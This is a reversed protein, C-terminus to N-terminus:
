TSSRRAWPSMSCERPRSIMGSLTGISSTSPSRMAIRWATAFHSFRDASVSGAFSPEMSSRTPCTKASKRPSIITGPSGTLPVCRSGAFAGFYSICPIIPRAAPGTVAMAANGASRILGDGARAAGVSGIDGMIATNSRASMARAIISSAIVSSAIAAGLGDLAM